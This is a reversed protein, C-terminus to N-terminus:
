SRVVLRAFEPPRAALLFRLLIKKALLPHEVTGLPFNPNLCDLNEFCRVELLHLPL